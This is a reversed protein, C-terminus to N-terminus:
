RADLGRSAQVESVIQASDALPDVELVLVLVVVVAIDNGNFVKETDDIEVGDGHGVIGLIELFAGQGARGQIESGTRLAICHLTTDYINFNEAATSPYM